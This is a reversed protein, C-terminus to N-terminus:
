HIYSGDCYNLASKGGNGSSVKGYTKVIFSQGTGLAQQDRAPAFRTLQPEIKFSVLLRTIRASSLCCQLHSQLALELMQQRSEHKSFCSTRLSFAKLVASSLTKGTHLSDKSLLTIKYGHFQALHSEHTMYTFLPVTHSM